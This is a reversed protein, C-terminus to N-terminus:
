EPMFSAIFGLIFGLVVPIVIIGGIIALLVVEGNSFKTRIPLGPQEKEWYSNLVRQVVMLPFVSLFILNLANLALYRFLIWGPTYTEDVGAEKSFDRIDRLQRYALM